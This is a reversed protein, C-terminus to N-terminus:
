LSSLIGYRDFFLVGALFDELRGQFLSPFVQCSIIQSLRRKAQPCIVPDDGPGRSLDSPGRASDSAGAAVQAASPSVPLVGGPEEADHENVHYEVATDDNWDFSGLAPGLSYESGSESASSNVSVADSDAESHYRKSNFM